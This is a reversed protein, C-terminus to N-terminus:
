EVGHLIDSTNFKPFHICFISIIYSNVHFICPIEFKQVFLENVDLFVLTFYHTHPCIVYKSQRESMIYYLRKETYIM